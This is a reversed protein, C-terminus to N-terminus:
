QIAEINNSLLPYLCETHITAAKRQLRKKECVTIIKISHQKIQINIYNSVGLLSFLANNLNITKYTIYQTLTIDM